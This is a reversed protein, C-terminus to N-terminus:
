KDGQMANIIIDVTKKWSFDKSHALGKKAMDKRYKEDFYYKEYAVVHADDDDWDIMVGADGVVEPLSSTNSTIRVILECPLVIKNTSCFAKAARFIALLAYTKSTPATLKDPVPASNNFLGSTM